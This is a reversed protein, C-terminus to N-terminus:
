NKSSASEERPWGYDPAPAGWDSFFSIDLPIAKYLTFLVEFDLEFTKEGAENVEVIRGNAGDCTAINGNATYEVGGLGLSFFDPTERYRWVVEATKANEDYEVLITQSYIEGDPRYLGNDFVIFHNEDIFHPDHSHSWIGAGFDGGDGMIWEVEGSPYKIKYIRNLNRVNLYIVSNAEDFWVSNSHTWDHGIGLWINNMDNPNNDSLPIYDKGMWEWLIEDTYPDIIHIGDGLITYDESQKIQDFILYILNGNSLRDIDHHAIDPLYEYIVSGDLDIIRMTGYAGVAISHDDFPDIETIPCLENYSMEWLVTGDRRIAAVAAYESQHMIDTISTLFVENPDDYTNVTIEFPPLVSEPTSVAESEVWDSCKEGICARARYKYEALPALALDLWRGYAGPRCSVAAYEGGSEAREICVEVKEDSYADWGLRVNRASVALAKLGAPADPAIIEVEAEGDAESDEIDSDFSDSEVDFDGDSDGNGADGSTNDSSCASFFVLTTVLM